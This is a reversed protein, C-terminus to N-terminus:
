PRADLTSRVTCTISLRPVPDSTVASVSVSITLVRQVAGVDLAGSALAAAGFPASAGAIPLVLHLHACVSEGTGLPDRFVMQADVPVLVHVASPERFAFVERGHVSAVRALPLEHPGDGVVRKRRHELFLHEVVLVTREGTRVLAESRVVADAADLSTVQDRRAADRLTLCRDSEIRTGAIAVDTVVRAHAPARDPWRLPDVVPLEPWGAAFLLALAIV